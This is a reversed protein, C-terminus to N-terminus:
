CQVFLLHLVQIHSCGAQCRTAVTLSWSYIVVKLQDTAHPGVYVVESLGSELNTKKCNVAQFALPYGHVWQRAIVRATFNRVPVRPFPEYREYVLQPVACSLVSLPVAPSSVSHLGGSLHSVVGVLSCIVVHLVAGRNNM